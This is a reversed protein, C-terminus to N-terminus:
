FSWRVAAGPRLIIQNAFGFARVEPVIAAHASLVIALEAAATAAMNLNLSTTTTTAAPLLVIPALRPDTIRFGLTSTLTTDTRVFGLGGKFGAQLRGRAPPHYGLLVSTATVRTRVHRDLTIAVISPPTSLFDSPGTVSLFDVPSGLSEPSLSTTADTAAGADVGLELSWRAALFGGLRVGGGATTTDLTTSDPSTVGSGRRMDAFVSGAVYVGPQAYAAATQTSALLGLMYVIRKV